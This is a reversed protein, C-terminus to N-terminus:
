RIKKTKKIGHTVTVFESKSSKKKPENVTKDISAPKPRYHKGNHKPRRKHQDYSKEKDSPPKADGTNVSTSPTTTENTGMENTLRNVNTGIATASSVCPVINGGMVNPKSIGKMSVINSHAHTIHTQVGSLYYFTEDCYPCCKDKPQETSRVHLVKESNPDKNVNSATIMAQARLRSRSPERLGVNQRRQCKPNLSFDSDNDTDSEMYTVAPTDHTSKRFAALDSVPKRERLNYVNQHSKVASDLNQKPTNSAHKQDESESVHHNSTMNELDSYPDIKDWDPPRNSLEYVKRKNMKEVPVTWKRTIADKKWIKEILKTPNVTGSGLMKQSLNKTSGDESLLAGSSGSSPSSSDTFSSSDWTGCAPSKQCLDKETFGEFDSDSSSLQSDIDTSRNTDTNPHPNVMSDYMPMPEAPLDDPKFGDFDSESSGISPVKDYIVTDDTDYLDFTDNTECTTVRNNSGLVTTHLQMTTNIGKVVDVDPKEATQSNHQDTEVHINICLVPEGPKCESMNSTTTHYLSNLLDHASMDVECDYPELMDTNAEDMVPYHLSSTEKQKPNISMDVATSLQCYRHDGAAMSYSHEIEYSSSETTIPPQIGMFVLTNLATM